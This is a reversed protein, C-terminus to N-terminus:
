LMKFEEFFSPFSLYKRIIGNLKAIDETVGPLNKVAAENIMWM